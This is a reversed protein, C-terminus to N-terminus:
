DTTHCETHRGGLDGDRQVVILNVFDPGEYRCPLCGVNRGEYLVGNTNSEM